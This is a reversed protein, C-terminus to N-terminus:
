IETTCSCSWVTRRQRCTSKLMTQVTLWPRAGLASLTNEPAKLSSGRHATVAIQRDINLGEPFVVGAAIAALLAIGTVGWGLRRLGTLPIRPPTWALRDLREPVGSTELYFCVVLLVHIAKGIISWVIGAIAMLALAVVVTPLIVALKLGAHALLKGAGTRLLWLTASSAALIVLWWVALPLGFSWFRSGTRKWSEKLAGMPSTNEFVLAPVAFLWRVFLWAASLLCAILLAGAISLALWWEFPQATLYYNIDRDGLLLFYTLAVGGAFPVSAAGYFLAQLLGLRILAPLYKIKEWLAFTVSVKRGRVTAVAIVLLGVQEAFWFTLVSALTLLSFLLGRFSLFFALLDSNSIALQGSSAVLRTLLWGSLPALVIVYILGFWFEFAIVSRAICPLHTWSWRYREFFM